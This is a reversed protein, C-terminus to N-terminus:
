LEEWPEVNTVLKHATECFAQLLSITAEVDDTNCLQVGSHMYRTPAGITTTWAGSGCRQLASADTGGDFTKVYPIDNESCTVYLHELLAPNALTLNDKVYIAVGTGLDCHKSRDYPSKPCGGDIALGADADIVNAAVPMGRIGVEEQASSVFYLDVSLDGVRKATEILCYTGMRDDFNRSVVTKDNLKSLGVDLTATDGIAVYQDVWEKPMGTDFRLADMKLDNYSEPLAVVARITEERGYILVPQGPLMGVPVGGIMSMEIFGDSDINRVLLGIEDAHAALVIRPARKGATKKRARKIGIVNGMRDKYISDCYPRLEETVVAQVPGEHGSIGPANCVKKLLQYNM